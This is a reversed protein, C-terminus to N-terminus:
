GSTRETTVGTSEFSTSPGKGRPWIRHMSGEYLPNETEDPVSILLLSDHSGLKGHCMGEWKTILPDHLTTTRIDVRRIRTELPTKQSDPVRRGPLEYHGWEAKGPSTWRTCYDVYHPGPSFVLPLVFTEDYENYDKTTKFISTFIVYSTHSSTFINGHRSIFVTM